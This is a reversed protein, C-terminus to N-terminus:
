GRDPVHWQSYWRSNEPPPQQDGWLSKMTEFSKLRPRVEKDWIEEVQDFTLPKQNSKLAAYEDLLEKAKGGLWRVEDAVMREGIRRNSERADGGMALHLGPENQGPIRTMDVCEPELAMLLSTEVKGAHGGGRGDFGPTNAEFDPLGYLRTGFHPQLIGLLTKLDSWNPGYHGTFFIAGHFGLADAARVHYCVNKFHQWAPMSTLWPRTEGISHHSWVAYGGQEHIHWYDLPAVIGGHEYAAQCAIAHAKLADLGIANHPGHPECLGYCFYVVPFDKFASELEDPFMREWRVERRRM